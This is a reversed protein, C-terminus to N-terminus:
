VFEDVEADIVRDKLREYERIAADVIDYAGSRGGKNYAEIFRIIIEVEENSYKANNKRIGKIENLMVPCFHKEVILYDNALQWQPSHEDAYIVSINQNRKHLLEVMIADPIKYNYKYCLGLFKDVKIDEIATIMEAM